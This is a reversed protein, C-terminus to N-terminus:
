GAANVVATKFSALAKDLDGDILAAVGDVYPNKGAGRRRASMMTATIRYVIFAIVCGIIVILLSGM